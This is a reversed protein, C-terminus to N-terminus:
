ASSSAGSTSTCSTPARGTTAPNSTAWRSPARRPQRRPRGRRLRAHPAALGAVRRPPSSRSAASTSSRSRGTTTSSTTPRTPIPTSGTSGACRGTASGTSPRAGPTACSPRPTSPTRGGGARSSTWRSCGPPAGSPTCPPSASSRTVGTPPASSPWTTPRASRLRAGRRHPRQDRRGLGPDPPPGGVPVAAARVLHVHDAAGPQGPRRQHRRRSGPVPGQRRCRHRRPPHGPPGPRDIGRGAAPRRVLRVARRRASGARIRHHRAGHRRGDAACRRAAARPGGPLRGRVRRACRPPLLRLVPDPRGEHARGELPGPVRHLSRRQARPVGAIAGDDGRRQRLETVLRDGASRAVVGALQASRRARGPPQGSATRDGM